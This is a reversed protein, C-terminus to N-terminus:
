IYAPSKKITGGDNVFRRIEGSTTNKILRELGSPIDLTSPDVSLSQFASTVYGITALHGVETLSMIETDSSNRWRHPLVGWAKYFTSGNGSFLIRELNVSDGHWVNPAFQCTSNVLTLPQHTAAGTRLYLHTSGSTLYMYSGGGAIDTGAITLQQGGATRFFATRNFTAEGNNAISMATLYSDNVRLVLTGSAGPSDIYLPGSSTHRITGTYVGVGSADNGATISSQAILRSNLTTLAAQNTAGATYTVHMRGNTTDRVYLTNLNNATYQMWGASGLAVPSTSGFVVGGGGSVWVADDVLVRSHFHSVAVASSAGPTLTMQTRNNVLDRTYGNGDGNDKYWRWHDIGSSGDRLYFGGSRAYYGTASVSASGNDGDNRVDLLGTNNKLRVGSTNGLKIASSAVMIGGTAFTFDPNAFNSPATLELSGASNHLLYFESIGTRILRVHASTDINSKVSILASEYSLTGGAITSAAIFRHTTPTTGIGLANAVTTIGSSGITLRPTGSTILRLTSGGALDCDSKGTGYMRLYSVATDFARITVDDGLLQITSRSITGGSYVWFNTQGNTQFHQYGEYNGVGGMFTSFTNAGTSMNVSKASALILNGRNIEVNGTQGRIALDDTLNSYDAIGVNIVSNASLIVDGFAVNNSYTRGTIAGALYAADQSMLAVRVNAPTALSGGTAATVQLEGFRGRQYGSNSSNRVDLWGANNRLVPGSPAGIQITSSFTTAGGIAVPGTFTAGGDANLSSLASGTTSLYVYPAAVQGSNAVVCVGFGNVGSPLLNIRRDNLVGTGVALFDGIEARPLTVAFNNQSIQLGNTGVLFKLARADAFATDAADRVHLAGSVNKVRVGSELQFSAGTINVNTDSVGIVVNGNRIRLENTASRAMGVNSHVGLNDAFSLYTSNNLFLELATIRSFATNGGNRVELNGAINNLRVGTSSGIQVNGQFIAQSTNPISLAAANSVRLEVGSSSGNLVTLGASDQRLAYTNNNYHDFHSFYALDSVASGIRVRGFTHNSDVDSAATIAGAVTLSDNVSMRSHFQALAAADNAGRIYTVQNRGSILDYLYLRDSLNATYHMFSSNGSAGTAPTTTSYQVGAAGSVRVQRALLTNATMVLDNNVTLQGGVTMAGTFVNSAANKLPVNPTLREDALTGVGLSSASGTFAVAALGSTPTYAALAAAISASVGSPTAAMFPLDTWATSGDGLKINKANLDVGIEGEYLVPNESGWDTADDRRLQIRLETGSLAAPDSLAEIVAKSVVPGRRVGSASGGSIVISKM